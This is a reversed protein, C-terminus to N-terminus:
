AALSRLEVIRSKRADIQELTKLADNLAMVSASQEKAVATAENL